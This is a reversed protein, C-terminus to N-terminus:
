PRPPGDVLQLYGAGGVREETASQLPLAALPDGPLSIQLNRRLTRPDSTM